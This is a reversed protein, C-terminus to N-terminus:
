WTRKQSQPFVVLFPFSKEQKKVAKALGVTVQKRGDEGTEGAGHLFLICPLPKGVKDGKYDHPVFVVYKSEVAKDKFVYDIFGTKPADGAAASGVLVAGAVAALTVAFRLLNVM